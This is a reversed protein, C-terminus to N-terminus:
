LRGVLGDGDRFTNDALLAATRLYQGLEELKDMEPSVAVASRGQQSAELSLKRAGGFVDLM